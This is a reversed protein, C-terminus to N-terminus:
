KYILSKVKDLYKYTDLFMFNMLEGYGKLSAEMFFNNLNEPSVKTEKMLSFLQQEAKKSDYYLKM